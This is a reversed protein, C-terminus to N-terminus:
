GGLLSHGSYKALDPLRGRGGTNKERGERLKKEPFSLPESDGLPCVCKHEAGMGLNRPIQGGEMWLNVLHRALKVGKEQTNNIAESILM